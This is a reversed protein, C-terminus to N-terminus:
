NVTRSIMANRHQNYLEKGEPSNVVINYAKAFDKVPDLDLRIAEAKALDDLQIESASKQIQAGQPAPAAPTKSGETTGLSKTVDESASNGVKLAKLAAERHEPNEISEVSKLLAARQAVTGPLNALETEARKEFENDSKELKLAAIEADKSDKEVIAAVLRPDDSKTFVTGDKATYVVNPDETKEVVDSKHEDETKEVKPASLLEREDASKALFADQDEAKEITDFHARHTASLAVISELRENAKKLEEDMQIDEQNPTATEPFNKQIKGLLDEDLDQKQVMAVVASVVIDREVAHLHGANMIVQIQGEDDMVWAHRHEEADEGVGVAFDTHGSRDEGPYMELTHGHGDDASTVVTIWGLKEIKNGDKDYEDGDDRKMIVATAPAQAPKTVSSLEDIRFKKM